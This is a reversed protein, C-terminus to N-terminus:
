GLMLPRTLRLYANAAVPHSGQKPVGRTGRFGRCHYEQRRQNGKEPRWMALEVDRLCSRPFVLFIPDNLSLKYPRAHCMSLVEGDITSKLPVTAPNSQRQLIDCTKTEVPLGAKTGVSSCRKCFKGTTAVCSVPTVQFTDVVNAPSSFGASSVFFCAISLVRLAIDSERGVHLRQTLM